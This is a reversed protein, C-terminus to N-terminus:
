RPISTSSARVSDSCTSSQVVACGRPTRQRRARSADKECHTSEARQPSHPYPLGSGRPVAASPSCRLVPPGGDDLARAGHAPRLPTEAVYDQTTPNPLLAVATLQRLGAIQAQPLPKQCRAALIGNASQHLRARPYRSRAVDRVEVPGRQPLGSIERGEASVTVPRKPWFM